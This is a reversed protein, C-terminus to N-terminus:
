GGGVITVIEIVDGDKIGQESHTQHPILEKNIEVACPQHNLQLEELLLAVSAEKPLERKKGNVTIM